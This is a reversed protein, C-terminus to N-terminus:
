KAPAAGPAVVVKKKPEINEFQEKTKYAVAQFAARTEGFKTYVHRIAVLEGNVGLKKALEEQVQKNSPTAGTFSIEGEIEERQLFPNEKKNKITLEM